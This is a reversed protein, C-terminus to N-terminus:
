DSQLYLDALRNKLDTHAQLAEQYGPIDPPIVEFIGFDTWLTGLQIGRHAMELSDELEGLYYHIWALNM